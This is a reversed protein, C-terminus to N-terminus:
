VELLEKEAERIAKNVATKSPANVNLIENLASNSHEATIITEADSPEPSHEMALPHLRALANLGSQLKVGPPTEPDNLADRVSQEIDSILSFLGAAREERAETKRRNYAAQFIPNHHKWTSLTARNVGARRAAETTTAGGILADIAIEHKPSEGTLVSTETM